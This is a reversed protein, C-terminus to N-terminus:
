LEDGEFDEFRITLRKGLGDAIKLLTDVTPHSSGKEIKSVNAQTLGAKSALEKQTMDLDTRIKVVQARIEEFVDYAERVVPEPVPEIDVNKLAEDLFKQFDSM